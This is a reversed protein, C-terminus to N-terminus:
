HTKSALTLVGDARAPGMWSTWGLRCVNRQGIHLARIEGPRLVLRLDYDLPDRVAFRILACLPSHNAGDPLFEHFRQWDLDQLHVRFKGARDVVQRGLVLDRGLLSSAHALQNRQGRAIVVKRQVCQEILLSPHKFYYRLVTEILAASHARMGLLGLYPLLRKWDLPTAGRIARGGLGILAFMQASFADSAGARFRAPYRYKRWLPLMLRHLRHHFLDLFDAVPNGGAREALAHEAYFAPLPSNAGVLGLVNLRLRARLQGREIFFTVRDIDNGPFGLGPNAQFELLDYLAEDGLSPHAERLREIVQLVAQFLSYERITRSLETLAPGAPGDPIAM